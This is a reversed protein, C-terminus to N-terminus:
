TVAPCIHWLTRGTVCYEPGRMVVGAKALRELAALAHGKSLHMRRGFDRTSFGSPQEVYLGQAVATADALKVAPAQPARPPLVPEPHPWGLKRAWNRLTEPEGRRWTKGQRVPEGDVLIYRNSDLSVTVVDGAFTTVMLSM